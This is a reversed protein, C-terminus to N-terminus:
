KIPKLLYTYIENKNDEPEINLVLKNYIAAISSILFLSKIFIIYLDIYKNITVITNKNFM